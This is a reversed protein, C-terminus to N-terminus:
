YKNETKFFNILNCKLFSFIVFFLPMGDWQDKDHHSLVSNELRIARRNSKKM